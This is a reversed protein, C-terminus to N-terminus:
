RQLQSRITRKFQRGTTLRTGNRMILEYTEDFGTNVATIRSVNIIRTRHVRLFLKPDLKAQLGALTERLLHTKTGCHLHVFNNASEIWDISEVPVFEYHGSNGVVLRDPLTNRETQDLLAELRSTIGAQNRGILRERIRDVSQKLREQDFPKLLYDVANMEFAKVAYQEYATVFVVMPMREPGVLRVVDLGNYDRMQVDLFVLHPQMSLIAQM